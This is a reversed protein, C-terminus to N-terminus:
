CIGVVKIGYEEMVRVADSKADSLGIFEDDRSTWAIMTLIAFLQRDTM